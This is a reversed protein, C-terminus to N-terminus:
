EIHSEHLAMKNFIFMFKSPLNFSKTANILQFLSQKVMLSFGQLIQPDSNSGSFLVLM